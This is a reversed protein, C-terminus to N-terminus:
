HILKRAALLHEFALDLSESYDENSEDWGWVHHVIIQSLEEITDRLSTRAKELHEDAATNVSV